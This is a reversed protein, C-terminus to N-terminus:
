NNTKVLYWKDFLQKGAKGKELQLVMSTASIQEIKQKSRKGDEFKIAITQKDGLLEWSGSVHRGPSFEMLCSGKKHFTLKRQEFAKRIFEVRDPSLGNLDIQPGKQSHEISKEFDLAWTGVLLGATKDAKKGQAHLPGALFAMFVLGWLCTMTIKGYTKM